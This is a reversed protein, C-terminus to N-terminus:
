IYHMKEMIFTELLFLSLFLSPPLSLSQSLSLTLWLLSGYSLSLRTKSPSFATPPCPLTLRPPCGFLYQFTGRSNPLWFARARPLFLDLQVALSNLSSSCVFLLSIFILGWHKQVFVTNALSKFLFMDPKIPM